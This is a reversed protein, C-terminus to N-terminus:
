QEQRNKVHNLSRPCIKDANYWTGMKSDVFAYSVSCFIPSQIQAGFTM